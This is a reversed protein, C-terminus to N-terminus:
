ARQAEVEAGEEAPGVRASATFLGLTALLYTLSGLFFRRCTAVNPKAEFQKLTRWWLLSPVAAGVPLMWSAIGAASAACPMACLAALYPKSMAATALGTKDSLPFMDYGGRM